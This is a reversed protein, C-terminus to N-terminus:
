KLTEHFDPELVREKEWKGQEAWMGDNKLAAM